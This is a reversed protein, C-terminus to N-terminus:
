ENDGQEKLYRLYFNLSKRILEGKSVKLKTSVNELWLSLSEPVIAIVQGTMKEISM